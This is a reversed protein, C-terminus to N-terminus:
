DGGVWGSDGKTCSAPSIAIFRFAAQCAQVLYSYAGPIIRRRNEPILIRVDIGRSRALQLQREDSFM